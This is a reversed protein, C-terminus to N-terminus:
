CVKKCVAFWYPCSFLSYRIFCYAFGTFAVDVLMYM